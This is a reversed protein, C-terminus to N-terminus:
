IEEEVGLVEALDPKGSLMLYAKAMGVGWIPLTSAFGLQWYLAPDFAEADPQDGIHQIVNGMHNVFYGGVVCSALMLGRTVPSPCKAASYAGLGVTLMGGIKVVNGLRRHQQQVSPQNDKDFQVNGAM